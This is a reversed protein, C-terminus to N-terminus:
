TGAERYLGHEKIYAAVAPPVMEEPDLGEQLAKRVRTSSLDSGEWNLFTFRGGKATLADRAALAAPTPMADRTLVVFRALTLVTDSERWAPLEGLTDMGIIYHVEGLPALARLTDVTYTYGPRDVEMRSVTLPTGEAALCCMNYRHEAEAVHASKHPAQGLPLLMVPLDLQRRVAMAMAIHGNHIPNFTGGLVAFASM